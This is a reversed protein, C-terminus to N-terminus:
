SFLLGFLKLLSVYLNSGHCVVLDNLVELSKVLRTMFCMIKKDKACKGVQSSQGNELAEWGGKELNKMLIGGTEMKKIAKRWFRTNKQAEIPLVARYVTCTFQICLNVHIESEIAFNIVSQHDSFDFNTLPGLSGLAFPLM